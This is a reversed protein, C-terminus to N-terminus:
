DLGEEGLEIQDEIWHQIEEKKRTALTGTAAAHVQVNRYLM